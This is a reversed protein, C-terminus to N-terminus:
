GRCHHMTKALYQLVLGEPGTQSAEDIIVVDFCEPAPPITEFVRYLPMIWAPIAGRCNDMAEQAAKLWRPRTKARLGQPLRGIATKWANLNTRQFPTLERLCNDWAKAAALETITKQNEATLRELSAELVIEDHEKGFNRLWKDALKWTWAAEFTLARDDWANDMFTNQLKNALRSAVGNLREHLVKRNRLSAQGKEFSELKEFCRALAQTDRDELAALIEQNLSHAQPSSQVIRVKQIADELRSTVKEFAHKSEVAQIDSLLGELEERRDWYPKVLGPISKLCDEVAKLYNQLSLVEELIELRERLYGVQVVLSGEEMKDIGKFASCLLEIKDIVDLYTVLLGLQESTKCLRGNVQVKNTIYRNQRAVRPALFSWGMKGGDEMHKQLDLADTLLKRREINEPFQINLTQAINAKDELGNLHREMFARLGQWVTDNGTMIEFIAQQIWIFRGKISGMSAVLDSLSKRLDKLNNETTEQLTQYRPSARRNDYTAMDQKARAEDDVIRAFQAVDPVSDRSIFDKELERCFDGPLDRYLRLLEGFESNSLPCTDRDGIDEDLWAFQNEERVVRQAIQQATGRYKGGAVEHRYSDIERSERLLREIDAKEKKNKYLYEDLKIILTRSRLEDWDSYKQNIGDVSDKLEQRADQDNGLLTVCLAQIEEPIKEKLVKLARPTQSTVLVRKGQALLHCIINAITHSKGTGPPGQVLINNQSKIRYIIQNQEENAPLPLYLHDKTFQPPSTDSIEDSDETQKPEECLIKIGSPIDDGASIKEIINDIYQIQSRQTRTRLIIAPAFTM